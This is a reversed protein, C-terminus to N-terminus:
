NIELLRVQIKVRGVPGAHYPAPEYSPAPQHYPDDPMAYPYPYAMSVVISSLTVLLLTQFDMLIQNSQIIRIFYQSVLYKMTTFTHLSESSSACQTISTM